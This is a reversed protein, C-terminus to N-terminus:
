RVRRTNCHKYPNRESKRVEGQQHALDAPSKEAEERLTLYLVQAMDKLHAPNPFLSKMLETILALTDFNHGQASCSAEKGNTAAMIYATMDGYIMEEMIKARKRFSEKTSEM